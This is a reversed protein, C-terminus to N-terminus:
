RVIDALDSRLTPEGGSIALYWVGFEKFKDIVEQVKELSLEEKPDHDKSTYCYDCERHLGCRFILRTPFGTLRKYRYGLKGCNALRKIRRENAGREQDFKAMAIEQEETFEQEWDADTVFAFPDAALMEEVLSKTYGETGVETATEKIAIKTEPFAMPKEESM